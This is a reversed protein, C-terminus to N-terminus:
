KLVQQNAYTVGETNGFRRTDKDFVIHQSPDLAIDRMRNKDRRSPSQRAYTTNYFVGEWPVDEQLAAM